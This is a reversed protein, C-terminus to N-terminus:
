VAFLPMIRYLQTAPGLQSLLRTQWARRSENMKCINFTDYLEKSRKDLNKFYYFPRIKAAIAFPEVLIRCNNLRQKPKKRKTDAATYYFKCYVYFVKRNFIKLFLTESSLMRKKMIKILRIDNWLILNLSIICLRVWSTM